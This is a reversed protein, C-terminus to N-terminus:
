AAGQARDHILEIRQWRLAVRVMKRAQVAYRRDGNRDGRQACMEALCLARAARMKMVHILEWRDIM